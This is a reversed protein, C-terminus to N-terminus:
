TPKKNWLFMDLVYWSMFKGFVYIFMKSLHSFLNGLIINYILSYNDSHHERPYVIYKQLTASM